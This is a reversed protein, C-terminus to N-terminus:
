KSWDSPGSLTRISRDRNLRFLVTVQNNGYYGPMQLNGNYTYMYMIVYNKFDISLYPQILTMPKYYRTHNINVGTTLSSTHERRVSTIVDLFNWKLALDTFFEINNTNHSYLVALKPVFQLNFKKENVIELFKLKADLIIKPSYISDYTSFYTSDVQQFLSSSEFGNKANTFNAYTIGVDYYKLNQYLAGVDFRLRTNRLKDSPDNPILVENERDVPIGDNNIFKNVNFGVMHIRPTFALVLKRPNKTKFNPSLKLHYGYTLAFNFEYQPGYTYYFVQSGFASNGFQSFFRNIKGDKEFLYGQGVRSHADFFVTQPSEKIGSFRNDYGLTVNYFDNTGVYAPNVFYDDFMMYKYHYLQQGSVVRAFGLVILVILIKKM